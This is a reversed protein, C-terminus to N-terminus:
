KHTNTIMARLRDFDSAEICASCINLPIQKYLIGNIHLPTDDAEEECRESMM